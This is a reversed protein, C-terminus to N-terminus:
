GKTPPVADPEATSVSVKTGDRVRQLGEVVVRAGPSLGKEVVWESGIRPGVQVSQVSVTDDDGVVAVRYSGQLEQIARQPVLIARERTETVARVRAFQGPRLLLKANPFAAQLLIAGTQQDVERNAAVLRGREPYVIGDALILEAQPEDEPAPADNRLRESLLEAYRLYERESVPFTVKVPDLQSVTTLLTSPSILDGIQAQALGAIGDIPSRIETWELNLRAQEVGAKGSEVAAAGARSAQVADDYEKKSVAGERSLPGYRAVDQRSKQLSAEARGLQGRADQLAARFERPDITFLLDGAKVVRGEQYDRSQLYGEVKARIQANVNGDITGVWESSIPVDRQAVRVVVVEPPPPAAVEAEKCAALVALILLVLHRPEYPGRM